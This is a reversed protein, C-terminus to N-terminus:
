PAKARALGIHALVAVYAALILDLIEILGLALPIPDPTEPFVHGLDLLIVFVYGWCATIAGKAGLTNGRSMAWASALALVGLSILFVNFGWFTLGTLASFDRTEVPGGPVLTAFSVVLLTLLKAANSFPNTSLGTM